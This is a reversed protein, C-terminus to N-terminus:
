VNMQNLQDLCHESVAIRAILEIRKQTDIESTLKGKTKDITGDLRTKLVGVLMADPMARVAFGNAQKKLTALLYARSGNAAENFQSVSESPVEAPKLLELKNHELAYILRDILRAKESLSDQAIQATNGEASLSPRLKIQHDPLLARMEAATWDGVGPDGERLPKGTNITHKIRARTAPTKVLSLLAQREAALIEDETYTRVGADSGCLVRTLAEAVVVDHYTVEAKAHFGDIAMRLINAFGTGPLIVRAPEPPKYDQSLHLARAKADALLHDLNMSIGDSERMWRKSIAQQASTSVSFQPLMITEFAVRAAAYPSPVSPDNQVRELYRLCGGWGPVIGVGTEVLGAYTEAHAQVADAHLLIECGGGLNLGSAALVVPFNAYRLRRLASQGDYLVDDVKDWNGMNAIRAALGLNAGVATNSTRSVIVMAKFGHDGSEVMDAAQLFLDMTNPDLTEKMGHLEVCAAGDGLDWMSASDNSLLPDQTERLRALDLVHDRPAIDQMLGDYNMVQPQGNESKYFGGLAAGKALLSPVDRGEQELKAVFWELGMDDMMQFPGKKWRYGQRMAADIDPIQDSMEEAVNLVYLFTDRMVDWGYAGLKDDQTEFVARIGKRGATVAASDAKPADKYDLEHLDFYQKVRRGDAAKELRYFGSKAPSKRGINGRELLTELADMERDIRHFDDDEPLTARMSKLVNHVTGLGVVDMTGFIGSKEFGMPRGLIADAEPPTVHHEMAKIAANNLMYTGIRNGVFGPSQKTTIVHRGMFRTAFRDLKELHARDTDESPVFELLNLHRVPNFFHSVFFDPKLAEPMGDMLASPMMTSTNSTVISSTKRHKELALFIDHKTALDERVVEIVWDADGIMPWDDPYFGTQIRELNDAHMLSDPEKQPNALALREMADSLEQKNGNWGLLTVDIGANALQGAIGAGMVGAGIVAVKKIEPEERTFAALEAPQEARGEPEDSAPSVGLARFASSVFSKAKM